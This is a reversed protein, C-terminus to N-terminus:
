AKALRKEIAMLEIAYRGVRAEIETREHGNMHEVIRALQQMADRCTEARSEDLIRKGSGYAGDQYAHESM